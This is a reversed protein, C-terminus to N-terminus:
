KLDFGDKGRCGGKNLKKDALYPLLQQEGGVVCVVFGRGFLTKFYFLLSFEINNAVFLRRVRSVGESADDDISSSSRSQM